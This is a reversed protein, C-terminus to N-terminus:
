VKYSKCFEKAASIDNIGEKKLIKIIGECFGEDTLLNLKRLIQLTIMDEAVYFKEKKLIQLTNQVSVNSAKEFMDLTEKSYRDCLDKIYGYEINTDEIRKKYEDKINLSIKECMEDIAKESLQLHIPVIAIFITIIFVLSSFFWMTRIFERMKPLTKIYLRYEKDIDINPDQDNLRNKLWFNKRWDDAHTLISASTLLIVLFYPTSVLDKTILIILGLDKPIIGKILILFVLLYLTVTAILM